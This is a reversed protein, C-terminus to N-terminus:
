SEEFSNPKMKLNLTESKKFLFRMRFTKLLKQDTKERKQILFSDNKETEFQNRIYFRDKWSEEFSNPKM